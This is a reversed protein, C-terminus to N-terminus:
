EEPPKDPVPHKLVQQVARQKDAVIQLETSGEQMGRGHLIKVIDDGALKELAKDVAPKQDPRLGPYMDILDAALLPRQEDALKEPHVATMSELLLDKPKPREELAVLDRGLSFTVADWRASVAEVLTPWLPDMAKPTQDSEVAKLLAQLGVTINPHDLLAHVISKRAELADSRSAWAGYAVILDSVNAPNEPNARDKVYASPDPLRAVFATSSGQASPHSVHRPGRAAWWVTAAGLAVAPVALVLLLRNPKKDARGPM